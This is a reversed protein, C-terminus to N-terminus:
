EHRESWKHKQYTDSKIHENILDVVARVRWWAEEPYRACTALVRRLENYQKDIDADTKSACLSEKNEFHKITTAEDVQLIQEGHLMLELNFIEDEGYQLNPRFGMSWKSLMERKYIKNWVMCWYKMLGAHGNRKLSYWNKGGSFKFNNHGDRRRWHNFQIINSKPYREIAEHMTACAESHLKDDSDLFTVYDSTAKFLGANRSRSVGMHSKNFIIRTSKNDFQYSQLLERSGDTSCDEVFIIEDFQVSQRAISALCRALFPKENYIPVILTITM